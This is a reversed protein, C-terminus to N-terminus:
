SNYLNDITFNRWTCLLPLQSFVKFYSYACFTNIFLTAFGTGLLVESYAKFKEKRHLYLAGVAMVIGALYGAGVTM